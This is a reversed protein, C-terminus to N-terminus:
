KDTEAKADAAVAKAPSASKQQVFSGELQAGEEVEIIQYRMEGNVFSSSALKLRTADVDGTLRGDIIVTEAKVNGELKGDIGIELVTCSVNGTVQGNLIVRDPSDISGTLKINKGIIADQSDSLASPSSSKFM